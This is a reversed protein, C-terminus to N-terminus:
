QQTATYVVDVAYVGADYGFGPTAKYRVNFTKNNGKTGNNIMTVATATLPKYSSFGSGLSGGTNNGTVRVGLVSVPMSSATAVGNNTVTFSSSAAKVTITFNSNSKVTMGQNSSTVGSSYHNASTFSMVVNNGTNTSTATFGIELVNTLGLEVTQIATGEENATAVQAGASLSTCIIVILFIIAKKMTAKTIIEIVKL